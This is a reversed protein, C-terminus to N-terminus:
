RFSYNDSYLQGATCATMQLLNIDHNFFRLRFQTKLMGGTADQSIMLAYGAIRTDTVPQHIPLQLLRLTYM